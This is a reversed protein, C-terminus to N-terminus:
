RQRSRQHVRHQSQRILTPTRVRESNQSFDAFNQLVFVPGVDASVTSSTIHIRTQCPPLTRGKFEFTLGRGPWTEPFHRTYLLSVAVRAVGIM